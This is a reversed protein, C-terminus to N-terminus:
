GAPKWIRRRLKGPLGLALWAGVAFAASYGLIRGWPRSFPLHWVRVVGDADLTALWEGNESFVAERGPVCALKRRKVTDLVLIRSRDKTNSKDALCGNVREAVEDLIAISPGSHTGGNPDFEMALYRDGGIAKLEDIRGFGEFRLEWEDVERGTAVEWFHSTPNDDSHTVLFRGGNLLQHTSPMTMDGILVGTATNWWRLKGKRFKEGYCYAFVNQGDPSFEVHPNSDTSLEARRTSTELDWLCLWPQEGRYNNLTNWSVATRGGPAVEAGGTVGELLAVKRGTRSDEVITGEELSDSDRYVPSGNRSVYAIFRCDQSFRIRKPFQSKPRDADKVPQIARDVDSLSKTGAAALHDRFSMWALEDSLFEHGVPNSLTSMTRFYNRTLGSFSLEQWAISNWHQPTMNAGTFTDWMEVRNVVGLFNNGHVQIVVQRGDNSVSAISQFHSRGRGDDNSNVFREETRVFYRPTPALNSWYLCACVVFVVAATLRSARLHSRLGRLRNM